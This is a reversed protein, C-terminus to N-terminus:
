EEIRLSPQMMLSSPWIAGNAGRAGSATFSTRAVDLFRLMISSLASRSTYVAVYPRYAHESKLHFYVPDGPRRVPPVLIEPIFTVGLGSRVFAHATDWNKTEYIIHPKFGADECLRLARDTFRMKRLFIFNEDQALSLDIFTEDQMGSLAALPHDYPVALFIEEQHLVEYELSPNSLPMPVMALDVENRLVKNELEASEAEFLDVKINPYNHQFAPLFRALHHLSYFQSIGIRLHEAKLNSLYYLHNELRQSAHLVELGNEIFLEGAPTPVTANGDRVFLQLGFRKELKAIAQSLAPQSVFLKAAAKSYSGEEAIATVYQIEKITLM